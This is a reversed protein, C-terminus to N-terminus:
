KWFYNGGHYPHRKDEPPPTMYDGYMMRLFYDYENICRFMYGEFELDILCNFIDRDYITRNRIDLPGAISYYCDTSGYPLSMSFLYDRYRKQASDYGPISSIPLVRIVRSRWEKLMMRKNLIKTAESFFYERQGKDTPLSVIPYTDICIGYDKYVVGTKDYTGKHAIRSFPYSYHRKTDVDCYELSESHFANKFRLLDPMPMMIDVDDDWPIYGKHRVAGLLTGFALSYRIDNSRCFDDIERLMELQISKKEELSIPNRKNTGM